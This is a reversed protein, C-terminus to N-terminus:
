KIKALDLLATLLLNSGQEVDTWHSWEDPAHSVGGVSPIFIMGAKTINTLFQTDHGAGSPMIQYSLGLEKSKNEFLDIISQHCDHPPLWSMEKYEFKLNYRRAIASLSKRCSNALEKMVDNKMDRGVITFDVEGPVTHPFGPKLDVKGVTIRSKDTGDEEIIRSIQYAFDVLGMFADSRMNMPATGAHDAKGILKVIWKFVGSIGEVIGISKNIEELVPGQEIHLEIFSHFYNAPKCASLVSLPDFGCEILADKLLIGNADHAKEIWDPTLKGCIAQVGMMGGFRGEEESFAIVEIPHETEINNEKLVRVCEVGAMVGLTGDFMGGCPVSDIHSGTGVVAKDSTGYKGIVNGAEDMYIKDFGAKNMKDILWHRAEMDAKSFGQRYIGCDEENYGIKSLELLDQTLREINIKHQMFIGTYNIRHYNKNPKCINTIFFLVSLKHIIM